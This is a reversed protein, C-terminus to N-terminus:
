RKRFCIRPPHIKPHGVRLPAGGGSSVIGIRGPQVLRTVIEFLLDAVQGAFFLMVAGPDFNLFREAVKKPGAAVIVVPIIVPAARPGMILGCKVPPRPLAVQFKRAGMIQFDDPAHRLRRVAGPRIKVPAIANRKLKKFIRRLDGLGVFVLRVCM